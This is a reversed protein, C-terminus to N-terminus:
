LKCTAECIRSEQKVSERVHNVVNGSERNHAASDSTTKGICWHAREFALSLSKAVPGRPGLEVNVDVRLGRLRDESIGDKCCLRCDSWQVQRM